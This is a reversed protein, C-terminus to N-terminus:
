EEALSHELLKASVALLDFVTILGVLRDNRIVPLCGIRNTRMIKIAEVTPTEPTVTMPNKKMVVHVPVQSRNLPSGQALLTLLDRQSVIGVLRGDEEVPVHRIREWHMISAVLDILDNPHVIHLDTVMFQGVTRYNNLTNEVGDLQAISWHHVPEGIKQRQLIAATLTRNRTEANPAEKMGALSRLCWQAGTQGSRTREELIGIYRDIDTSDIGARKLGARALPLLHNLVLEQAPLMSGNVWHLQAKLGHRAAAFFNATADEFDLVKDIPGYEEKLSNMLGYFFAANSVEDVITPGSPLVRHEIRMHPRGDHIGYCVRNWRWVTGNHLRLASLRPAEGRALVQEPDEDIAHTLISRFRAIDQRFIELITEKVWGRGFTVRPVRYREHDTTTREDVSHQFLAVRTEAWLRQGFLVPSNVAAALVPATIAQSLNYADRFNEPSVQLHIQFSTNCAELMMNDHTVHLEDLGKLHVQFSSGRTKSLIRNLEHYRPVNAMNDLTLDALTLTPLIGALVVDASMSEAAKRALGVLEDLQHEMTRLCSGTFDLPPLNTELNFKALETTFRPDNLAQLVEHSVPAPRCNRDVLFMEQEAGIRSVGSEIQGTELMKQLAALDSLLARTFARVKADDSNQDVKHEGM